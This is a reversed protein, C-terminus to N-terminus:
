AMTTNNRSAVAAIGSTAVASTLVNRCRSHFTPATTFVLTRRIQNWQRLGPRM